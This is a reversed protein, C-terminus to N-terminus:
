RLISISIHLAKFILGLNSNKEIYEAIFIMTNLLTSPVFTRISHKASALFILPRNPPPAMM